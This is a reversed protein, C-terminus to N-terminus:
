LLVEFMHRASRRGREKVWVVTGLGLRGREVANMADVGVLGLVEM